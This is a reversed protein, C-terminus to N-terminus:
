RTTGADIEKLRARAAPLYALEYPSREAIAAYWGAAEEPRSLERLLEARLFRQSALSFFPSAVTLQFWLEPRPHELLALAERVPTRSITLAEAIQEEVLAQRSEFQGLLIAEKIAAYAAERYRPVKEVFVPHLRPMSDKM